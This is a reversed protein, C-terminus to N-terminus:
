KLMVVYPVLDRLGNEVRAREVQREVLFVFILVSTQRM